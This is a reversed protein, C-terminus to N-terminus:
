SVQKELVDTARQENQLMKKIMKYQQMKQNKRNPDM